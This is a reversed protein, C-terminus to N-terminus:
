RGTLNQLALLSLAQVVLAGSWLLYAGTRQRRCAMWWGGLGNVVYALAGITPLLFLASKPRISDPLGSRAYHFALREPLGPYRAMLVAFLLLAGALGALLLWRSIPETLLAERCLMPEEWAPSLVQSPGLQRHEQLAAIFRDTDAPSLAFMGADTDLLLCVRAPRTALSVFRDPTTRRDPQVFPSPWSAAGGQNPAQDHDLVIRRITHLPIVQCSAAWRVRLANRDLWYELNFAGWTRYILRALIPLSVVLLVLLVFSLWDPPRRFLWLAFLGALAAGGLSAALGRWRTPDPLPEFVM